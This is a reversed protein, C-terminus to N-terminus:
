SLSVDIATSATRLSGSKKSTMTKIRGPLCSCRPTEMPLPSDQGKVETVQLDSQWQMNTDKWRM